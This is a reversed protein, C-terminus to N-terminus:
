LEATTIVGGFPSGVVAAYEDNCNFLYGATHLTRRRASHEPIRGCHCRIRYPCPPKLGPLHM